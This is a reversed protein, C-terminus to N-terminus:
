LRSLTLVASGWGLFLWLSFLGVGCFGFVLVMKGFFLAIPNSPLKLRCM